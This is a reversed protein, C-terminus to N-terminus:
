GPSSGDEAARALSDHKALTGMLRVHRRLPPDAAPESAAGDRWDTDWDTDYCVRLAPVPGDLLVGDPEALRLLDPGSLDPVRDRTIVFAAPLTPGTLRPPQLRGAVARRYGLTGLQAGAALVGAAFEELAERALPEDAAALIEVREVLGVPQPITTVTGDGDVSAVSIMSPAPSVEKAHRTIEEVDFDRDLPEVVGHGLPRRLGAAAYAAAALAGIRTADDYPHVAEVTVAVAWSEDGHPAFLPHYDGTGTFEEGDWALVQGTRGDLTVEGHDVAWLCQLRELFGLASLTLVSGPPTLVVLRLGSGSAFRYAAVLWQTLAVVPRSSLLVASRGTVLDCPSDLRESPEGASRAGTMGGNMGGNM